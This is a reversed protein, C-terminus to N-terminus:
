QREITVDRGHSNARRSQRRKGGMTVERGVISRGLVIVSSPKSLSLANGTQQSLGLRYREYEAQSAM